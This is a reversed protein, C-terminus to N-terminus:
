LCNSLEFYFTHFYESVSLQYSILPGFFHNLSGIFEKLLKRSLFAKRHTVLKPTCRDRNGRVYCFPYVAERDFVLSM